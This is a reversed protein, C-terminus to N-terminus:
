SSNSFAKKMNQDAAACPRRYGGKGGSQEWYKNQAQKWKKASNKGMAKDITAQYLPPSLKKQSNPQKKALKALYTAKLNQSILLNVSSSSSRNLRGGLSSTDEDISNSGTTDANGKNNNHHPYCFINRNKRRTLKVKIRSPPQAGKSDTLPLSKEAAAISPSPHDWWNVKAPLIEYNKDPPLPDTSRYDNKSYSKHDEWPLSEMKTNTIIATTTHERVAKSQEHTKAFKQHVEQEPPSWVPSKSTTMGGSEDNIHHSLIDHNSWHMEDEPPQDEDWAVPTSSPDIPPNNMRPTNKDAHIAQHNQGIGDLTYKCTVKAVAQQAPPVLKTPATPQKEKRHVRNPSPTKNGEITQPHSKRQFFTAIKPQTQKKKTGTRLGTAEQGTQTTPLPATTILTLRFGKCIADQLEKM